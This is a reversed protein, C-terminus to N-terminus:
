ASPQVTLGHGSLIKRNLSLKVVKSIHSSATKFGFFFIPLFLAFTGVVQRWKVRQITDCQKKKADTNSTIQLFISYSNSELKYLM